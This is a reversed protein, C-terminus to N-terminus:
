PQPIEPNTRLRRRLAATVTAVALMPPAEIRRFTMHCCMVLIPTIAAIITWYETQDFRRASEAGLGLQFVSFLVIGHLLYLSYAQEGLFKSAPWDLIGFLSAGSAMLCFAITLLALPLFSKTSDFWAVAACVCGIAIGSGIASKAVRSIRGSRVVYAAIIGGFFPAIHIPVPTWVICGVIGIIGIGIFARPPPLGVLAALIPLSLYFFWEYPLSWTAGAVVIWTNPLGNLDPAGLVTFSMWKVIGKLLQSPTDVLAGNSCIFTLALVLLMVFLYLPTLRMVRSVFLQLWDITRTRSELIKTFFLFATIMFFLAVAGQGFHTYLRSPPVEWRGTHLYGYWVASHHLFVFFALYGRLGDIASYRAHTITVAGPRSFISAVGVAILVCVIAPLPSLPNLAVV